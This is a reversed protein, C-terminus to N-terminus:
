QGAAIHASNAALAILDQSICIVEIINYVFSFTPFGPYLEHTVSGRVAERHLNLGCRM